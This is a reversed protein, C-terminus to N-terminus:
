EEVEDFDPPDEYFDDESIQPRTHSRDPDDDAQDQEAFDRIKEKGPTKIASGFWPSHIHEGYNISMLYQEDEKTLGLLQDITLYVTKGNPLNYM